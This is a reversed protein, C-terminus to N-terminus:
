IKEALLVVYKSESNKSKTITVTNDKKIDEKPGYIKLIAIGRQNKHTIEVDIVLGAGEIKSDLPKYKVSNMENSIGKTDMRECLGSLAKAFLRKGRFSYGDITGDDKTWIKEM